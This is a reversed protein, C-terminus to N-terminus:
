QQHLLESNKIEREKIKRICEECDQVTKRLTEARHPDFQTVVDVNLLHSRVLDYSVHFICNVYIYLINYWIADKKM